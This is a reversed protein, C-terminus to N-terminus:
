REETNKAVRNCPAQVSQGLATPQLTRRIPKCRSALLSVHVGDPLPRTGSDRRCRSNLL